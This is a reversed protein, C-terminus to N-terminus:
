RHMRGRQGAGQCHRVASCWEAPSGRAAARGVPECHRVAFTTGAVSALIRDTDAVLPQPVHDPTRALHLHPSHHGRGTRARRWLSRRSVVRERRPSALFTSALTHHRVETALGLTGLVVAIAPALRLRNVCGPNSPGPGRAPRSWEGARGPDAGRSGGAPSRRDRAASADRPQIGRGPHIGWTPTRVDGILASGSTPRVPNAAHAHDDVQWSRPDWSGPSWRQVFMFRCTTSQSPRGFRKTLHSVSVTTV